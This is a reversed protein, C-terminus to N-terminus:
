VIKANMNSHVYLMSLSVCTRVYMSLNLLKHKIHASRCNKINNDDSRLELITLHNSGMSAMYTSPLGVSAMTSGRAM